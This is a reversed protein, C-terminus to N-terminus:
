KKVYYVFRGTKGVQKIVNEAELQDLYRGITTDSVGLHNQLDDNAFKDKDAIFEKIKRLNEAKTSNSEPAGVGSRGWLYGVIVGVILGIVLYIM